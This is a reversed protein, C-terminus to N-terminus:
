KQKLTNREADYCESGFWRVLSRGCWHKQRLSSWVPQKAQQYRNTTEPTECVLWAQYSKKNLQGADRVLLHHDTSLEAWKESWHGLCLDSSVVLSGSCICFVNQVSVAETKVIFKVFKLGTVLDLKFSKLGTNIWSNKHCTSNVYNNLSFFIKGKSYM